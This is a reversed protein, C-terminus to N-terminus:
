ACLWVTSIHRRSSTYLARFAAEPRWEACRRLLMSARMEQGPRRREDDMQRQRGRDSACQILRACDFWLSPSALLVPQVPM